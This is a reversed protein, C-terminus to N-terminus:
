ENRQDYERLVCKVGPDSPWGDLFASV